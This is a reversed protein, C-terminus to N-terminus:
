ALITQSLTFAHQRRHIRHFFKTFETFELLPM